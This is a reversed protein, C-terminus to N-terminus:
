ERKQRAPDFQDLGLQVLDIRDVLLRNKEGAGGYLPGDFKMSIYAKWRNEAGPEYLRQGIDLRSNGSPSLAIVSSEGITM